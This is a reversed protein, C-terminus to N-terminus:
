DTWIESVYYLLKYTKQGGSIICLKLDINDTGYNSIDINFTNPSESVLNNSTYVINNGIQVTFRNQDGSANSAPGSGTSRARTIHLNKKGALNVGSFIFGGVQFDSTSDDGFVLQGNEKKATGASYSGGSPTNFDAMSTSARLSYKSEGNKFITEMWSVWNGNQYTKAVKGGFAGSLYQNVSLPCVQIGNKKLANFETASSTGSRIWVMGEMPETPETASFVWATIKDSTIVGITNEKPTAANMEEETAYAVVDFNLGIVGGGAGHKFGKAM